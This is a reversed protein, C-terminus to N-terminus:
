GALRDIARCVPVGVAELIRGTLNPRGAAHHAWRRIIPFGLRRLIRSRRLRAALPRAWRAYGRYVEAPLSRGFADDRLLVDLPLAGYNYAVTCLYTGGGGGGAISLSRGSSDTSFTPFNRVFELALPVQRALQAEGLQGVLGYTGLAAGLGTEREALANAFARSRADGVAAAQQNAVDSGFRKGFVSQQGVIRDLERNLGPRDAEFAREIDADLGAGSLINTLRERAGLFDDTPSEGFLNQFAPGITGAPTGLATEGKSRLFSEFLGSLGKITDKRGGFRPRSKSQQRSTAYSGYGEGSM